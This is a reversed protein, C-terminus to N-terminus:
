DSPDVGALAPPDVRAGALAPHGRLLDAGSMRRGGAPQVELLELMGQSTTLAPTGEGVVAISGPEGYGAPQVTGRWIIVREGGVDVFSGPWPQYARVQRELRGAGLMPDLRGDARRLPRTLTVDRDSQTRPVVEGALWRPLEEAVVDAAMDALLPELLPTTENGTLVHHRQAIIPGSDLGADMLMLTVGTESDGALIAAPIPTAGRHRPLLSPHLNLAGHRPLDLIAQPAIQGYDALVILDPRLENLQAVSAAARLREPRLMPIQQAEAWMAVPSDVLRGRSGRRPPATVVAVLDIAQHGALSRAIPVAFEGTGLFITRPRTTM